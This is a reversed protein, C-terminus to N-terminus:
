GFSFISSNISSELRNLVKLDKLILMIKIYSFHKIKNLVFRFM